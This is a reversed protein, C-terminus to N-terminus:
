VVACKTCCITVDPMNAEDKDSLNASRWEKSFHHRTTADTRKMDVTTTHDCDPTIKRRVYGAAHVTAGKDTNTRKRGVRRKNNADKEADKLLKTQHCPHCRVFKCAHERRIANPCYWIDIEKTSAFLNDQLQTKDESSPTVDEDSRTTACLTPKDGSDSTKDADNGTTGLVEGDESQSEAAHNTGREQSFVEVQDCAPVPADESELM